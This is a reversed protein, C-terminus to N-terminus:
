EGNVTVIHDSSVPDGNVYVTAGSGTARSSNVDIPWETTAM